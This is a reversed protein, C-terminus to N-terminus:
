GHLKADGGLCMRHAIERVSSSEVRTHSRGILFDGLEAVMAYAFLALCGAIALLPFAIISVLCYGVFVLASKASMMEGESKEPGVDTLVQM